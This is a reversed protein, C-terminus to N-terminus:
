PLALLGGVTLVILVVSGVGLTWRLARQWGSDPLAHLLTRRGPASFARAELAMTQEEVDHLASLVLPGALPVVGRARAVVGGETDLGRARQAEVIEAARQVLRPVTRIAAGIVFIARRGLGRREVDALLDDIETTLGLVAVSLAFAIVRLAAQLAQELGTWTPALPGIQVIPDTAGPYLFTNVLLISIILPATALVFPVMRRGIGARWATVGVLALVVLPGTWGRVVFALV